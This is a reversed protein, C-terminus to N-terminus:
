DAVLDLTSTVVVDRELEIRGFPATTVRVDRSPWTGQRVPSPSPFSIDLFFSFLPFRRSEARVMDAAAMAARTGDAAKAAAPGGVIMQDDHAPTHHTGFGAQDSRREAAAAM